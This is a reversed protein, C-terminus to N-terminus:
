PALDLGFINESKREPGTDTKFALFLDGDVSDAAEAFALSVVRRGLRLVFEFERRGLENLDFEARKARGVVNM